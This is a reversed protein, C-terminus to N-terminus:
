GMHKYLLNGTAAFVHDPMRAFVQKAVQIQWGAGTNQSHRAPSRYYTLESGTAGLRNKFTILGSNDFDSRGLDFEHAGSAKAEQITRWLLLPMGGLNNFRADSAGYKYVMSNQHLLTLIAAVPVHGRSVVRLKFADGLCDALNRFWRMPQPPLLHRRRTLLLLQFFKAFLPQSRGEEYALAERQARGICQQVATKHFNRFLEDVGPRLDLKHLCFRKDERFGTQLSLSGHHLRLPRIEVYKLHERKSDRELGCLLKTLNEADVVLPQCHDAFPLSVLRDGTLWSRIRCCALGNALEQGAASTTFVVPEYGYTRRLAELWGPTHFVSSEPHAGVFGSWRPDKLPDIEYIANPM